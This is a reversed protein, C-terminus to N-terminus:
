GVGFSVGHCFSVAWLEHAVAGDDELVFGDAVPAVFCRCCFGIVDDFNVSAACVVEVVKDPGAFFAIGCASISVEILFSVGLLV